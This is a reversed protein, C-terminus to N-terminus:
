GPCSLEAPPDTHAYERWQAATLDRGAAACADRILDGSTVSWRVIEGGSSATYLYRGDPTFTLATGFWPDAAITDIPYPLSFTALVDGTTLDTISATGDDQLRGLLTGDRSIALASTLGGPGPLVRLLHQGAPDWVELTGTDRQVLLGGATFAAADAGGSGVMHVAGTRLDVYRVRFPTAPSTIAVERWEAMVAAQGDPSIDAQSLYLTSNELSVQDASVHRVAGTRLDYVGVGGDNDIVALSEGGPLLRASVPDALKPFGGWSRIIKGRADTLDLHGFGDASLLLVQDGRWLPLTINAPGARGSVRTLRSGARYTSISDGFGSVAALLRGDPSFALRPPLGATAADPVSIGTSRGLRSDQGLDWLELSEGSSSVLQGHSGLFQVETIDGGGALPTAQAAQVQQGSSVQAVYIIGSDVLALGLGHPSIVLDSAAANPGVATVYTGAQQRGKTPWFTVDGYKTFGAYSGNASTGASYGGAPLPPGSSHSLVHLTPVSREEAQNASILTLSSETPLAAQTYLDAVAARDQSGSQSDRLLVSASATGADQLVAALRGSPSVAVSSALHGAAFRVAHRMGARWLSAASGDAAVVTGGDASIAVDTVSAQGVLVSARRGTATNFWALRGDALGAVVANGDASAALATVQAGAQLYRVLHPGAAVAQLLAARTQPNDNMRYAAVALLQAVDLHTGINSIALAALERSTAITAQARASDRQGVAIVGAVTALVTVTALVSVAARALRRARRHERLHEGIIADKPVGRVPAALDALREAPIPTRRGDSALDSLDVWLPEQAFAGRLAPPVPADAAWDAIERDWAVGPTTAAVLLREASRNALWWQVERNVWVSEAADASALLIFWQSAALAEEISTWLGPNAALNATDCFVRVARLKHWPKAFRELDV